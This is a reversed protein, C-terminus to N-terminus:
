LDSSHLLGLAVLEDYTKSQDKFLQPFADYVVLRQGRKSEIFAALITNTDAPLLASDIWPQLIDALGNLVAQAHVPIDFETNVELWVSQDLCVISAFMKSTANDGRLDEPVTLAWLADSLSEATNSGSTPIYRIM